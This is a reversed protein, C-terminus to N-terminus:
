QWVRAKHRSVTITKTPYIRKSISDPKFWLKIERKADAKSSSVHVVNEYVGKTTIRGYAGRISQPLADEPSTAGAVKRCKKIAEKGFYVIAIIKNQKHFKGLFFDVTGKFFPQRKINKYHEEVIKRTPTFVRIGIIELGTEALKLLINGVIGKAIADPKIIVLAPEKM